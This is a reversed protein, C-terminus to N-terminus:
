AAPQSEDALIDEVAKFLMSANRGARSNPDPYDAYMTLRAWAELYPFEVGLRPIDHEDLAAKLERYSRTVIADARTQTLVVRADIDRGSTDRATQRIEQLADVACDADYRGARTPLLVLDALASAMLMEVTAIGPLDVIVVESQEQLRKFTQFLKENKPADELDAIRLRDSRRGRTEATELWTRLPANGDLELLTTDYGARSFEHGLVLSLTTKSVGGKRQALVICTM